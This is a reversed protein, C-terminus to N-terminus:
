AICVARLLRIVSKGVNCENEPVRRQGCVRDGIVHRGLDIKGQEMGLLKCIDGSLEPYVSGGFILLNSM